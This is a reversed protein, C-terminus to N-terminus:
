NGESDVGTLGDIEGTLMRMSEDSSMDGHNEVSNLADDISEVSDFGTESWRNMLDESNEFFYATGDSGRETSSDDSNYNKVANKFDNINIPGYIEWIASGAHSTFLLYPKLLGLLAVKAIIKKLDRVVLRRDPKKSAQIGAAIRRLAIVVQSPKM